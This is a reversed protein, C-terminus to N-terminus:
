VVERIRKINNGLLHCVFNTGIRTVTETEIYLIRSYLLDLSLSKHFVLPVKPKGNYVIDHLQHTLTNIQSILHLYYHIRLHLM